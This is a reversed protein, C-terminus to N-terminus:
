SQANEGEFYVQYGNPSQVIMVWAGWSQKEPAQLVELAQQLCLQHLGTINSTGIQWVLPQEKVPLDSNKCLLGFLISAGDSIGAFNDEQYITVFGLKHYFETEANLDAVFLIPQLRTYM